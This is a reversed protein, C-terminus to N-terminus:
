EIRWVRMGGEVKRCTHKQKLSRGATMLRQIDPHGNNAADKFFVSDGVLMQKVIAKAEQAKHGFKPPIAVGREIIM